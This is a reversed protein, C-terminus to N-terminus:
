KTPKINSWGTKHISFDLNSINAIRIYKCNQDGLHLEVPTTDKFLKNTNPIAYLKGDREQVTWSQRSTLDKKIIDGVEIKNTMIM